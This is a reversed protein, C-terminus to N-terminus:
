SIKKSILNNKACNKERNKINKGIVRTFFSYKRNPSKGILSDLGIKAIKLSLNWKKLTNREGNIIKIFAFLVIWRM